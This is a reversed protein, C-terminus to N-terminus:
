NVEWDFFETHSYDRRKIFSSKKKRNSKFVDARDTIVKHVYAQHGVDWLLVDEPTNLTVHLAVTLETVGLSSALHGAKESTSNLIFERIEICAKELSEINM